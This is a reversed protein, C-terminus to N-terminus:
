NKFTESIKRVSAFTAPLFVLTVVTIIRVARAEAFSRGSLKEVTYAHRISVLDRIKYGTLYNRMAESLPCVTAMTQERRERITEIRTRTYTLERILDELISEFVDYDM